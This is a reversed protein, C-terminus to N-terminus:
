EEAPEEEPFMGITVEEIRPEWKKLKGRAGKKSWSVVWFRNQLQVWLKARPESLVKQLRNAHSAGACAQIGLVGPCHRDMAVLDICGFLDQRVKAHPNWREVVQVTIGAARLMKLTRETPSPM